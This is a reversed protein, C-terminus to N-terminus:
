TCALTAEGPDADRPETTDHVTRHFVDPVRLAIPRMVVELACTRQVIDFEFLDVPATWPDFVAPTAGLVNAAPEPDCAYTLLFFLAIFFLTVGSEVRMIPSM